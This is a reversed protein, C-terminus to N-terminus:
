RALAPPWVLRRGTEREFRAVDEPTDIDFRYHASASLFPAVAEPHAQRWQRAGVGPDSRLIQQRVEDGFVVPNGPQGNVQPYVLSTAPPRQHWAQLLALVDDTTILPQDALAVLVVECGEDLAALGLRQSSVQGEDPQLNLVCRAATGQVAPEILLSHHGLVVVLDRVGAQMLADIARRILPVGDLQLLSKPRHGLRSGSGAALLM